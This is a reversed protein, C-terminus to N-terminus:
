GISVLYRGPIRLTATEEEKTSMLTSTASTNNASKLKVHPPILKPRSIKIWDKVSLLTVDAGTDLHM